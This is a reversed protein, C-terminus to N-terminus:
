AGHSRRPSRRGPADARADLLRGAPRRSTRGEPNASTWFDRRLRRVKRGPNVPRQLPSRRRGSGDCEPRGQLFKQFTVDTLSGSRSARSAAPLGCGRAVGYCLWGFEVPSSNVRLAAAGFGQADVVVYPGVDVFREERKATRRDASLRQASAPHVAQVSSASRSRARPAPYIFVPRSTHLLAGRSPFL